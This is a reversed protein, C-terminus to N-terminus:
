PLHSGTPFSCVGKKNLTLPMKRLVMKFSGLRPQSTRRRVPGPWRGMRLTMKAKEELTTHAKTWVVRMNTGADICEDVKSWVLVWLDVDNLGASICDVEGKNLARVVGMVFSASIVKKLGDTSVCPMKHSRVTVVCPNKQEIGGQSPKSGTQSSREGDGVIQKTTADRAVHSQQGIM